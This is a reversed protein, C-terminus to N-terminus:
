PTQPPPIKKRMRSDIAVAEEFDTKARDTRNKALWAKGRVVLAEALLPDKEFAQTAIEIALDPNGKGLQAEARLVEATPIQANIKKLRDLTRLAPDWRNASLEIRAKLLSLSADRPDKELLMEIDKLAQAPKGALSFTWARMRIDGLSTLDEIAGDWDKLFTRIRVRHKLWSRNVPDGRLLLDLDSLAAKHNRATEHVLSRTERAEVNGKETELVLDLEALLEELTAPVEETDPRWARFGAIASRLLVPVSNPSLKLCNLYDSRAEEYRGEEFLIDARSFRVELFGPDVLLARSLVERAEYPRKLRLLTWGQFAHIESTYPSLKAAHEFATLALGPKEEALFALGNVFPPLWETSGNLVANPFLKHVNEYEKLLWAICLSAVFRYQPDAIEGQSHSVFRRFDERAKERLDESGLEERALKRLRLIGRLRHAPSAPVLRIAESYAKEAEDFRYQFELASGRLRWAEENEPDLDLVKQCTENVIGCLGQIEEPDAGTTRSLDEARVLYKRAHHLLPASSTHVRERRAAADVKGKYHLITSLVAAFVAVTLLLVSGAAIWTRWRPRTSRSVQKKRAPTMVNPM